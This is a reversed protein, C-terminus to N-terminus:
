IAQILSYGGVTGGCVLTQIVLMQIEHSMYRVVFDVM